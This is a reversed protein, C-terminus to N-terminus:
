KRYVRQEPVLTLGFRDVGAEEESEYQFAFADNALDVIRSRVQAWDGKFPQEFGNIEVLWIDLYPEAQSVVVKQQRLTGTRYIRKCFKFEDMPVFFAIKTADQNLAKEMESQLKVSTM